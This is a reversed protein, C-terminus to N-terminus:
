ASSRRNTWEGRWAGRRLVAHMGFVGIFKEFEQADGPEVAGCLLQAFQV